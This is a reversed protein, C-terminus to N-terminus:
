FNDTPPRHGRPPESPYQLRTVNKVHMNAYQLIIHRNNLLSSFYSLYPTLTCSASLLLGFHFYFYFLSSSSAGKVGTEREWQTLLFFHLSCFFFIYGVDAALFPLSSTISGRRGARGGGDTRKGETHTHTRTHDRTCTCLQTLTLFVFHWRHVWLAQAASECGVIIYQVTSVALLRRIVCECM